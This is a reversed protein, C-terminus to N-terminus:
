KKRLSSKRITCGTITTQKNSWCNSCISIVRSLDKDVEVDNLKLIEDFCWKVTMYLDDEKTEVEKDCLNCTVKM